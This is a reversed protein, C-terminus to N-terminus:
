DLPVTWVLESGTQPSSNLQISGRFVQTVINPRFDELSNV